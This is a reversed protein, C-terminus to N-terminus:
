ELLLVPLTVHYFAYTMICLSLKESIHPALVLVLLINYVIYSLLLRLCFIYRFLLLLAM